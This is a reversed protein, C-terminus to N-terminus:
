SMHDGQKNKNKLTFTKDFYLLNLFDMNELHVAQHIKLFHAEWILFYFMVLIGSTEKMNGELWEMKKGALGKAM